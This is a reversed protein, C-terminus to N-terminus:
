CKGTESKGCFTMLTIPVDTPHVRVKRISLQLQDLCNSYMMVLLIVLLIVNVGQLGPWFSPKGEPIASDSILLFHTFFRIHGWLAVM